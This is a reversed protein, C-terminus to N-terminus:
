TRERLLAVLQDLSARLGDVREALGIHRDALQVQSEALRKVTEVTADSPSQPQRDLRDQLSALTKALAEQGDALRTVQGTLVPDHVQTADSGALSKELRDAQVNLMQQEHEVLRSLQTALVKEQREQLQALEAAVDLGEGDPPPSAQAAIAQELRDAHATLLQEHREVLKDLSSSLLTEQADVQAALAEIQPRVDPIEALPTSAVAPQAASAFAQELRDAQAALLQEQHDVLRELNAVLLREQIDGQAAVAQAQREALQAFHPALDPSEGSAPEATVQQARAALLQDMHEALHTLQTSLTEHQLEALKRLHAALQQEDTLSLGVMQSVVDATSDKLQESLDAGMRVMDGRLKAMAVALTDVWGPTGIEALPEPASAPTPSPSPPAALPHDIETGDPHADVAASLQEIWAQEDLDPPGASESV